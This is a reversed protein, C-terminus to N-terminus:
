WYDGGFDRAGTVDYVHLMFAYTAVDDKYWHDSQYSPRPGIEKLFQQVDPDAEGRAFWYDRTAENPTLTYLSEATFEEFMPTLHCALDGNGYLFDKRSECAIGKDTEYIAVIPPWISREPNHQDIAVLM